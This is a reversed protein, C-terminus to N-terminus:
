CNALSVGICFRNMLCATGEGCSNEIIRKGYVNGKYGVLDLMYFAIAEPTFVQCRVEM